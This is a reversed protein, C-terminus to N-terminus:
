MCIRWVYLYVFYLKSNAVYTNRRCFLRVFFTLEYCLWYMIDYMNYYLFMYHNVIEYLM